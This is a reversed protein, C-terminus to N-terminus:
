GWAGQDAGRQGSQPPRVRPAVHDILEDLGGLLGNLVLPKDGEFKLTCEVEKGASAVRGIEGHTFARRKVAMGKIQSWAYAKPEGDRWVVIGEPYLLVRQGKAAAMRVYMWVAIGLWLVVFAGLILALLPKNIQESDMMFMVAIGVFLVAMVVFAAIVM